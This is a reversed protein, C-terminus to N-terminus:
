APSTNPLAVAPASSSSQEVMSTAVARLTACAAPFAPYAMTSAGTEPPIAAADAPVSVKMTPPLSSAKARACGTSAAIPLVTIWAPALPAPCAALSHLLM